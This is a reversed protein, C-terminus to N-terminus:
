PLAPTSIPVAIKAPIEKMRDRIRAIISLSITMSNGKISSSFRLDEINRLVLGSKLPKLFEKLFDSANFIEIGRIRMKTSVDIVLDGVDINGKFREDRSFGKHAMLIDNEKDYSIKM